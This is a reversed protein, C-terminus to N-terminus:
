SGSIYGLSSSIQLLEDTKTQNNTLGKPLSWKLFLVEESPIFFGSDHGDNCDFASSYLTGPLRPRYKSIYEWHELRQLM